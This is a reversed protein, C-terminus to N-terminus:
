SVVLTWSGADVTNVSKYVNYNGKGNVVVTTPGSIPFAFGSLTVKNISFGSPVCFFVRSKPKASKLPWNGGSGSSIPMKTGALIAASDVNEVTDVVIYRPYYANVRATATKQINYAFNGIIKYETTVKVTDAKSGSRMPKQTNTSSDAFPNGDKTVTYDIFGFTEPGGSMSTSWSVTVNRDVDREIINPSVSIGMTLHNAYVIKAIETDADQREQIEQNLNKTLTNDGNIRNTTETKIDAKNQNVQNWIQTDANKRDEIEQNVKDLAEQAIQGSKKNIVDQYEGRNEGYYEDDYIEDAHAIKNGTISSHLTGGVKIDKSKDIAM